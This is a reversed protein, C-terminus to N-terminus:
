WASRCGTAAMTSRFVIACVASSPEAAHCTEALKVLPFLTQCDKAWQGFEYQMLASEYADRQAVWEASGKVGYLEYLPVPEKAGPFRVQCLRRTAMTDPLQNQISGTVLIPLGNYSDLESLQPGEMTYFRSGSEEIVALGYEKFSTGDAKQHISISLYGRLDTVKQELPRAASIILQQGVYILCDASLQNQDIISQLSVGFQAAIVGCTDGEKVTYIGTAADNAQQPLPIMITQGTIVLNETIGNAQMLTEMSVGFNLAISELTDDEQVTYEITGTNEAQPASPTPFPVPTGTLNLQYFGLGSSGGGGGGGQSEAFFQIYTWAIKGDMVVGSIGLQTDPVRTDLPVDAPPDALVYQTGSGDDSTFIIQDGQRSLTGSLYMEQVKRDWSEVNFKRIADEVYFQGTAKIYSFDELNEMGTTNGTLPVGALMILSPQNPDTAPLSSVYGYLTLPQNDSYDRYWEQPGNGAAHVYEMKGALMSDDLLRQLAEEATIIGYEGLANLDYAILGADVTLVQGTEDLVVRMM